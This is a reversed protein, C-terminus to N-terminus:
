AKLPKVRIQAMKLTKSGLTVSIQTMQLRKVPNPVGKVGEQLTHYIVLIYVRPPFPPDEIGRGPENKGRIGDGNRPNEGM